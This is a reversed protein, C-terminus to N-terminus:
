GTNRPKFQESLLRAVANADYPKAIVIAPVDSNSLAASYGSALVVPLGPRQVKLAALLDLGSKGGAMVIDSLVVDIDARSTAIALADDASGAVLVTYGRAELSEATLGRVLSDDEVLLVTGSYRADGRLPAVPERAPPLAVDRARPLLLTVDTGQGERSHVVASGGLQKSFGYVQALGLGAGKGVPKTTFFPEFIRPLLHVPIGHGSDRVTVAVYDGAPLDSIDGAVLTRNAALVDVTGAGEIADKANLVLNLIALELLVPDLQVPWTDAAVEIRLRISGRLAGGLLESLGALRDQLAVVELHGPQSSGFTMLQRTLTVAKDVARSCAALAKRARDDTSLMSAVQVGTTMTQLLNNFDHAIGGTLRGLAELKQTSLVAQQMRESEAVATRVKQQLDEEAARLDRSARAMRHQVVDTEILGTPSEAVLGGRGMTEADAQLQAVPSAISQSVRRAAWVALASLVVWAGILAALVHLAERRLEDRPVAIVVGWASEPARAFATIAPTGDLTTTEHVGQTQAAMLAQMDPSASRGVMKEPNLNRAVINFRADVLTGTWGRPLPQQVFIRQMDSAFSAMALYWPAGNQRVVQVGVAFSYQRGIPAMYVSSIRPWRGDPKAAEGVDEGFLALKPLGGQGLPVRTNFLQQGSADSLMITTDIGPAVVKAQAYLSALDGSEMSPSAALTKLVGARYTLERDVLLSLAKATEAAATAMARREAHYITYAAIASICTTPLLVLLVLLVLRHRVSRSATSAGPRALAQITSSAMTM